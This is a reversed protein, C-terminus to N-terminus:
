IHCPLAQIMGRLDQTPYFTMLSQEGTACYGNRYYGTGVGSGGVNLCCCSLETGLVNYGSHKMEVIIDEEEAINDDVVDQEAMSRRITSAVKRHRGILFLQVTVSSRSCGPSSPIYITRRALLAAVHVVSIPLYM